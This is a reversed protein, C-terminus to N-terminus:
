KGFVDFIMFVYFWLLMFLVLAQQAWIRMPFFSAGVIALVPIGAVIRKIIQKIHLM